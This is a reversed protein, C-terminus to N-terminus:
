LSGGRFKVTIKGPSECIVRLTNIGSLLELRPDKYDGNVSSGETASFTVITGNLEFAITTAICDSITFTPIVHMESNGITLSTTGAQFDMTSRGYAMDSEFNFPDWIWDDTSLYISYKYPKVNYDITINSWTGDNNSKWENLAFRGEYFFNPDDDLICRFRKGHLWNAFQSYGAAWSRRYGNAVIFEFSGERNNFNTYGTLSETLDLIGDSGPIDVYISKMSPPKFVPRSTPILHWDDWTNIQGHKKIEDDWENVHTFTMSHYWKALDSSM